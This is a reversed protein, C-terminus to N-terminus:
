GHRGACVGCAFTKQPHLASHRGASQRRGADYEKQVLECLYEVKLQPSPTGVKVAEADQPLLERFQPPLTGVIQPYFRYFRLYRYLQRKNSNSVQLKELELSLSSLLNDGYGARDAGNLQYEAIYCGIMWSCLSLSINVARSAQVALEQHVHYITSVLQGFNLEHKSTDM